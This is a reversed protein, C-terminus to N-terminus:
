RVEISTLRVADPEPSGTSTTTLRTGDARYLGAVVQYTGTPLIAPLIVGHRDNILQNPLWSSLPAFGGMPPLDSQAVVQGSANLVHIFVTADASPTQVTQWQLEVCLPDGAALATTKIRAGKLNVGDDFVASISLAELPEAHVYHSVQASGAFQTSVKCLSASLTRDINLRQDKKSTAGFDLVYWLESRETSFRQLEQASWNAAPGDLLLAAETTWGPLFSTLREYTDVQDFLVNAREPSSNSQILAVAEHMSDAEYRQAAYLPLGGLALGITAFLAAVGGVRIVRQLGRRRRDEADIFIEVAFVLALGIMVLLRVIVLATLYSADAKLLIFTIPWEIVYLAELILLLLTGVANPMLICLFAMLYLSWQPSYGKSWLLYMIFTFGALGIASRPTHRRLSRILVGGYVIAFGLTIWGWPVRSATALLSQGALAPDFRVNLAPDTHKIVGDILAYPSSWGPLTLLTEVHAGVMQPSKILFPSLAVLLTIVGVVIFAALRKISRFRILGIAGALAVYPKVLVGLGIAIGALRPRDVLILGIAALVALLSLSEFWGLVIFLPVFLTAYLWASKIAVAPGHLRKALAYILVANAADSPAILGHLVLNFWFRQDIWSPLLVSIKYALVSLWTFGPPYEVWYDIFPYAGSAALRGLQFHYASDPGTEAVYGGVRLTVIALLRVMLMVGIVPTLEHHLIFALTQAFRAAYSKLRIM